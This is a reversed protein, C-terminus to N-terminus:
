RRRSLLSSLAWIVFIDFAIIVLGWLPYYPLFVFSSLASVIAVVIGAIYGWAQRALIAAGVVIAVAGIVIHTWGWATLDFKFVYNNARVFVNDDAVASIGELLQFIGLTLLAAGAFIGVGEAWPSVEDRRQQTQTM